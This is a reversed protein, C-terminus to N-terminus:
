YKNFFVRLKYYWSYSQLYHRRQGILPAVMSVAKAAQPREILFNMMQTSGFSHGMFFIPVDSDKYYNVASDYFAHIDDIMVRRNPYFGRRGESLGCGRQDFALLDYGNM